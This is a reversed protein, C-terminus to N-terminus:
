RGLTWVRVPSQNGALDVALVYIAGSMGPRVVIPGTYVRVQRDASFAYEIRALGTDDAGNLALVTLGRKHTVTISVTPPVTDASDPTFTATPAVVEGAGNRWENVAMPDGALRLTGTVGLYHEVTLTQDGQTRIVKLDVPGNGTPEVTLTYARGGVLALSARQGEAWYDSGPILTATFAKGDLTVPGTDRSQEDYAHLVANSAVLQVGAAEAPEPATAVWVNSLGLIKDVYALVEPSQVLGLHDTEFARFAASGRWNTDAYDLGGELRVSLSAVTGDGATTEVPEHITEYCLCIWSWQQYERIGVITQQNVGGIITVPVNGWKFQRDLAQHFETADDFLPPNLTPARATTYTEAYTLCVPIPCQGGVDVNPGLGYFGGGKLAFYAESPMIQYFAPYNPTLEKIISEEPLCITFLILDFEYLCDGEQLVYFAKPTGVFPTGLLVAQQVRAAREDEALYQRTVLGGLSHAVIQVQPAGTQTLISRILADLGDASARLDKRWDYPYVWFDVGETYGYTETFHRVLTDYFDEDVYVGWGWGQLRTLIGPTDPKTHVTTYAPDPQAPSVGDPALALVRLPNPGFLDALKAVDAWVEEEPGNNPNNFLRSGM